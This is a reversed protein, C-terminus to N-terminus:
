KPNRLNANLTYPAGVSKPRPRAGFAGLHFDNVERGDLNAPWRSAGVRPAGRAIDSHPRPRFTQESSGSWSFCVGLWLCELRDRGLDAPTSLGEPWSLM